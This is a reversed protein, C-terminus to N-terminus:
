LADGNPRNDVSALQRTRWAGFQQRNGQVRGDQSNARILIRRRGILERRGGLNRVAVRGAVKSDFLDVGVVIPQPLQNVRLTLEICCETRGDLNATSEM